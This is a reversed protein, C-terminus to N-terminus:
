QLVPSSSAFLFIAAGWLVHSIIPALLNKSYAMLIANGLGLVMLSFLQLGLISGTFKHWFILAPLHVLAFLAATLVRAPWKHSIVRSLGGLIYGQFTWEEWVATVAGLGLFMMWSQGGPASELGLGASIVSSIAYFIIYGIGLLLGLFAARVADGRGWIEVFYKQWNKPREVLIVAGVFVLPKFIVEEIPEPLRFILRYLGWVVFIYVFSQILRHLRDLPNQFLM